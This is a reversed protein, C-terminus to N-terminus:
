SAVRRLKPIAARPSLRAKKNKPRELAVSQTAPPMPMSAIRWAERGSLGLGQLAMAAMSEAFDPPVADMLVARISMVLVGMGYALAADMSKFKFRGMRLGSSLDGIVGRRMEESLPGGEIPIMRVLVWGWDPRERSKKTFHRIAVSIRRAPDDALDYIPVLASDLEDAVHAAVAALLEERTKFYNYFTGRAVGAADVFDDITPADFGREAIVSLATELIGARTRARKQRGIEARRALDVQAL